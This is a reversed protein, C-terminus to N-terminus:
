IKYSQRGLRSLIQYNNVDSSIIGSAIGKMAVLIDFCRIIALSEFDYIKVVKKLNQKNQSATVLYGYCSNISSLKKIEIIPAVEFVLNSTKLM